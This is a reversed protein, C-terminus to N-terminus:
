SNIDYFKVEAIDVGRFDVYINYKLYARELDEKSYKDPFLYLIAEVEDDPLQEDHEEEYNFVANILEDYEKESINCDTYHHLVQQKLQEAIEYTECVGETTEWSWDFEGGYSFVRFM